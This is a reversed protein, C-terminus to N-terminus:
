SEKKIQAFIINQNLDPAIWDEIIENYEWGFAILSQTPSVIEFNAEIKLFEEDKTIIAACDPDSVAAALIQSDEYDKIHFNEALKVANKIVNTTIDVINFINLIEKVVPLPDAGDKELLYVITTISDASLNLGIKKDRLFEFLLVSAAASPRRSDLLDMAVNTDFLVNM